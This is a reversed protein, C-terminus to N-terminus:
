HGRSQPTPRARPKDDLALAPADAPEAFEPLLNGAVDYREPHLDSDLYTSGTFRSLAPGETFVGYPDDPQTRQLPPRGQMNTARAPTVPAPTTLTAHTM